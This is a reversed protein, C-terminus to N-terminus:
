VPSSNKRGGKKRKPAWGKDIAIRSVTVAKWKRGTRTKYGKAHLFAAIAKKTDGNKWV